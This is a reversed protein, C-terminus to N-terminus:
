FSVSLQLKLEAKGPKKEKMFPYSTTAARSYLKGWRSFRWSCTFATWMGRGYYAPVSFNGPADREYVYIRDDWDDILFFGQRLYLSLTGGKYGAEMYTLFGTNVCKAVNVRASATFCRSLWDLDVRADTKYKDSEWNRIRENLRFSVALADTIMYKWSLLARIQGTRAYEESRAEPHMLADVSFSCDHRKLSLEGAFSLALENSCKSGSRPAASLYPDYASPYYRVLTAMRMHESAQFESGLLIAPASNVWDYAMETFIDTGRICCRFDASTKMHPIRPDETMVGSFEM